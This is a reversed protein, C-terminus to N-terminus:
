YYTLIIVARNLDYKPLLSSSSGSTVDSSAARVPLSPVPFSTVPVPTVSTIAHVHAVPDRAKKKSYYYYLIM